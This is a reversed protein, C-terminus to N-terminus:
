KKALAANILARDLYQIVLDIKDQNDFHTDTHIWQTMRKGTKYKADVRYWGLLWIGPSQVKQQPENVKVPLWIDDHFSISDIAETRRKKWYDSIAKKGVLSDGNNWRYIANDAYSTMWNDINGSSLDAIGKKGIDMYKADTFEIPAQKTETTPVNAQVADAASEKKENNCATFIVVSLVLFTNMKM